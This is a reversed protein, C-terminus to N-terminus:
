YRELFYDSLIQRHDFCIDSPLNAQHYTAVSKADSGARPQGKARALFVISATQGRPDRNPASYCHFQRVLEIELGTEERVERLAADEASEGADVFGGPLAWGHPENQREVMVVLGAGTDIIVDVTLKPGSHNHTTDM